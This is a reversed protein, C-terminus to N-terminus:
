RQAALYEELKRREKRGRLQETSIDTPIVLEADGDYELQFSRRAGVFLDDAGYAGIVLIQLEDFKTDRVTIDKTARLCRAMLDSFRGIDMFEGTKLPGQNTAESAHSPHEIETTDLDTIPAQIEVSSDRLAALISVVYLPEAGMNSVLCRDNGTPGARNILVNTRRQRRFSTYLLQFYLVWVIMSGLSIIVSLEASHESLWAWM